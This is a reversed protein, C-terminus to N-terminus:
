LVFNDPLTTGTTVVIIGDRIYIGDGDYQQLHDKNILQVNNGIQTHEDVIVKDLLCNEGIAFHKPLPPSQHRPPTYFDNGLIVSNRVITGKKIHCRVGIISDSVEQAEVLAGQSIHANRVMTEKIFPSPLNYPHTCIPHEEDYMNMCHTKRTLAMNADYFSGVTGIDEWYGKFPYAYTNGKKVQIPILHHGFDDGQEKLLDFLVERKFVYIGMSGLFHPADANRIFYGKLSEDSLEFRKLIAPDSPKEVFDSVYGSANIKLLGMRRAEKEEIPLAAIVMDANKEKACQLLDIYNMSYLQDGSLILFYDASSQSLYHLNQRIADATGKYWAKQEFTEEPSILHIKTDRTHDVPYTEMIHKNLFSTFYQSIVYIQDIGSNLSNSLPVDILRYRGGFSVAPKCRTQTLPFLRSGQGGALIIGAVNRLVAKERKKKSLPV